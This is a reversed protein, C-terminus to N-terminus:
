PLEDDEGVLELTAELADFRAFFTDGRSITSALVDGDEARGYWRAFARIEERQEELWKVGKSENSSFGGIMWLREPRPMSALTAPDAVTPDRLLAMQLPSQPPLGYYYGVIRNFEPHFVVLDGPRVARAVSITAAPVRGRSVMSWDDAAVGARALSVFVIGVAVTALVALGRKGTEVAAAVAAAVCVWLIPEIASLYRTAFFSHQARLPFAILLAFFAVAGLLTAGHWSRRRVVELGIVGFACAIVLAVVGGGVLNIASHLVERAIEHVGLRRSSEPSPDSGLVMRGISALGPLAVLAAAAAMMGARRALTVLAPRAGRERSDALACLGVAAFIGAAIALALHNVWLMMGILGGVLAWRPLEGVDRERRPRDLLHLTYLLALVELLALMSFMRAQQAQDVMNPAVAALLAAVAGAIPGAAAIGLAAMAPVLLVGAVVSPLRLAWEARSDFIRMSLAAAVFSGPPHNPERSQWRIWAHYDSPAAVYWTYAEDYWLPREVMPACRLYAGAIVAVCIMAAAIKRAM